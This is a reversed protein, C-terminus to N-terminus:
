GGPKLLGKLAALRQKATDAGVLASAGGEAELQMEAIFRSPLKPTMAKARRRQRCWTITLTRQARTVAVYMLRREEEVRQPGDDDEDEADGTHPMLGEECGVIFVHPWELGKSAHVTTLRVADTDPDKGDLRSLLAITQALDVLSKGDEEGRKAIWAVFDVVNQWRQTAQREDLTQQLHDQYGIAKLIEALLEGPPEKKARWGIRNVYDGFARLPALQREPLRGEVGTEFLAAFMSREREAAYVGLTQLTQPGVGRKPTTVARIFAPDDDDNALLRLWAIVDRIEAREFWSQGGSLVYPIKQQRLAQEITRAQHNGRYLVAYDSFAGKREFRHAQIRMAISEAEAEDDDMPVVKVPDGVGLESWLRKEHLKPNNAILRNAATLISRSSRYNQELKIVKLRPFDVALRQLNELTAGRWGYISQDDDGVATFAARPGVLRKLLEYQTVNTDQYEDVLLYRLRNQWRERVEAHEDLMKLPLGILDDFDVAQYGALTAAYERFARAAAQEDAGRAIKAAREADVGANKWLSIRSQVARVLKRDTTALAQAVISGADDADLISFGKKLGLASGDERLMQVGLSHFTSVLPRGNSPLRIMSGLREGMEQAAKNTFTIAAIARPTVGSDILHVIKKTIVRTKGSGAGAIVLCPGDLYRVAEHQAPNLTDAM